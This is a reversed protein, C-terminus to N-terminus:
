PFLERRMGDLMAAYFALSSFKKQEIIHQLMGGDCTDALIDKTARAVLEVPSDPFTGILGALAPGSLPSPRFSEWNM